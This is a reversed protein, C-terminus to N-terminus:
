NATLKSKKDGVGDSDDQAILTAYYKDGAMPHNSSIAIYLYLKISKKMDEVPISKSKLPLGPVLEETEIVTQLENGIMVKICDIDNKIERPSWRLSTDPQARVVRAGSGPTTKEIILIEPCNYSSYNIVHFDSYTRLPDQLKNKEM